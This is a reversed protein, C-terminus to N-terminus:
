LLERTAGPFSKLMRRKTLLDSIPAHCVKSFGRSCLNAHSSSAVSLLVLLNTAWATFKMKVSRAPTNRRLILLEFHLGTLVYYTILASALCHIENTAQQSCTPKSFYLAALVVPANIKECSKKSL